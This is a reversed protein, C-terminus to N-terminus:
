AGAGALKRELVSAAAALVQEVTVLEMCRHHGLPCQRQACPSCELEVRVVEALELSSATLERVNPGMITVCPVDFAAAVWRPGSDGVLLLRADAVLAKLTELSREFKGLSLAGRRSAACVAGILAEEGPGGSVVARWGREDYLRDLAAAFREPRWLKAAGFAAGPCCAVYGRELDVGLERLLARQADRVRPGLHLRPHLSDVHIGALGAVDRLLHATPIPARRGGISPPVVAHTLLWRRGSLASGMRLPVRAKWARWAAGFSNSLLLVADPRLKRLLASEEGSAHARLHPALPGDNLLPALHKRALLTVRGFHPATLAAELMPTAMVLDGVWNPVQIALHEIRTNM